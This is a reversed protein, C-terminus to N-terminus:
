PQLREIVWRDGDRRYRLRDHLRDDRHQWFEVTDPAVLYGGWFPPLPVDGGAFRTEVDAAAAELAARDAIPESQRSAWASIRSARPRQRWYAASESPDLARVPGTVRVQRGQERWHFVLAARPDSALERGKASDYNTFFRFGLEDVGRLLVVRADPGTTPDVTAVVMADHDVVGGAAAAEFWRAFQAIPDPAADHEQLEVAAGDGDPTAAM